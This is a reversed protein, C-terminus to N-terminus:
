HHQARFSKRRSIERARRLCRTADRNKKALKLKRGEEGLRAEERNKEEPPLDHDPDDGGLTAM